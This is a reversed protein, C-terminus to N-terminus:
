EDSRASRTQRRVASQQSRGASEEVLKIEESTPGYLEYVLEEIEREVGSM